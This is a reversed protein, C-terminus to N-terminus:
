IIYIKANMSPGNFASAGDILLLSSSTLSNLSVDPLKTFVQIRQGDAQKQGREANCDCNQHEKWFRLNGM